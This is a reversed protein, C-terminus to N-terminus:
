NPIKVKEALFMGVDRTMFLIEIIKILEASYVCITVLGYFGNKIFSKSNDFNWELMVSCM